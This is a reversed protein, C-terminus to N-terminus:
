YYRRFRKPIFWVILLIGAIFGGIHAYWAVKDGTGSSLVQIFFWFGLFVVAPIRIVKIIFFIFILTHIQAKPFLIFYSGLIGAIAGSAGIM